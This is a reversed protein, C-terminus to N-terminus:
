VACAAIGRIIILAATAAGRKGLTECGRTGFMLAPPRQRLQDAAGAAGPEAGDGLGEIEFAQDLM